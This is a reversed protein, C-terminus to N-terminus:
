AIEPRGPDGAQARLWETLAPPYASQEDDALASWVLAGEYGALRAAQLV